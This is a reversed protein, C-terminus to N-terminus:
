RIWQGCRDYERYENITKNVRYHTVGQLPSSVLNIGPRPAEQYVRDFM